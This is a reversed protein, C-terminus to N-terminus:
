RPSFTSSVKELPLGRLRISRKTITVMVGSQIRDAFQGAVRQVLKAVDSGRLGERRLRIVSPGNDGSMALLRHFDSDLTVIVRDQEQALNSIEADSARSYGIDAVHCVNFGCAALHQVTSRPLGQDLLFRIM